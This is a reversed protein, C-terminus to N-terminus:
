AVTPSVIIIATNGKNNTITNVGIEQKAKIILRRLQFRMRASLIAHWVLLRANSLPPNANM